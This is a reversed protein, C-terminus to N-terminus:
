KFLIPLHPRTPPLTEHPSQCKLLGYWAWHRDTYKDGLWHIVILIQRDTQRDTQRKWHILIYSKAAEEAGHM